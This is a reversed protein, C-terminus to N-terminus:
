RRSGELSAQAAVRGFVPYSLTRCAFWRTRASSSEYRALECKWSAYGVPREEPVGVRRSGGSMLLAGFERAPLRGFCVFVLPHRVRPDHELAGQLVCISEVENALGHEHSSRCPCLDAALTDDM